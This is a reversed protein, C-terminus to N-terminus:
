ENFGRVKDYAAATAAERRLAFSLQQQVVEADQRLALLERTVREVERELWEKRTTVEKLEQAHQQRLETLDQEHLREREDWHTQFQHRLKTERDQRGMSERKEVAQEVLQMWAKHSEDTVEIQNEDSM